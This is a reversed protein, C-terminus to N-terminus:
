REEPRDIRRRTSIAAEIVLLMLGAFLFPQFVDRQEDVTKTALGRHVARLAQVITQPDVEGSAAAVVFRREDGGEGALARMGADDRKSTVVSGDPAHKPEAVVRGNGDVDHVVGGEPTGIGVVFVAVGLERATSVERLAEPSPDGGDTLVVIAKGREEIQQVAQEAKPESASERKPEVDLPDGGHGHTRACGLDDYLDPRLLCRSVRFMEAVNSGPPLDAPGLDYLFATAVEHDETLPFHAAAGAFVVPGVRDGPLQEILAAALERARGLRNAPAHRELMDQTAAVDEVLMSKSADVAVVVDLGRLEVKRKGGIQPRALALLVLALGLGALIAKVLRRPPSASAMVRAIVPLEGLRAVLVDRRYRDYLYLGLVLMPAVCALWFM